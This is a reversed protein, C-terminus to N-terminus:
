SLTISDVDEWDGGMLTKIKALDYVYHTGNKSEDKAQVRIFQYHMVDGSMVQKGTFEAKVAYVAGEYPFFFSVVDGKNITKEM